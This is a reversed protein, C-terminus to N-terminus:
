SLEPKVTGKEFTYKHSTSPRNEGGTPITIELSFQKARGPKGGRYHAIQDFGGLFYPDSNFPNGSTAEAFGNILQRLGALFTTKGSSNEGVLFTIPLVELPRPLEAFCRFNTLNIKYMCRSSGPRRSNVTASAPIM